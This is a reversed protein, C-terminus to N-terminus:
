EAAARMSSPVRSLAAKGPMMISALPTHRATFPAPARDASGIGRDGRRCSACPMVFAVSGVYQLGAISTMLRPLRM